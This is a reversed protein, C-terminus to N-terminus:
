STTTSSIRQCEGSDRSGDGRWVTQLAGTIRSITVTFHETEYSIAVDDIQAASWDGNQHQALRHTPSFGVLFRATTEADFQVRCDLYIADNLPWSRDISADRFPTQALASNNIVTLLLAGCAAQWATM